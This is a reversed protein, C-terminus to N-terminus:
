NLTLEKFIYDMGAYKELIWLVYRIDVNVCKNMQPHFYANSCLSEKNGDFALGVLEGKANMVPSGSNGGTIDNNSLFNIHMTGTNKDAWRGWDKNQILALQKDKLSFEYDDPNYKDLIGKSTSYESCYIGDTPNIPGVNGYTIRMTSNADPSQVRGKELNMEYMANTYYKELLAVSSNHKEEIQKRYLNFRIIGSSYLLKYLPDNKFEAISHEEKAFTYMRDLDSFISTNWAGEVLASINGNYSNYLDTIGEGWFQSDVTKFFLPVVYSLIDKELRLDLNSLVEKINKDFSPSNAFVIKMEDSQQKRPILNDMSNSFRIPLMYLQTSNVLTERYYQIQKEIWELDSYLSKMDSLLNGWKAKREPNSDIWEQLEKEKKQNLKVVGYRRFTLCEGERLEQVNSISFYRDSYKLRIQPDSIMWKDMINLCEKQITTIIPNIAKETHNVGFSSIYRDTSGPYGMIMTFDGKKVGKTSITLSREPVLPVNDASYKAPKGDKDAYIRYLAFDGKHQPWEWNDTDGGFAAISVPPAAVLRVDTYVVYLFMYYKEGKWMSAMSAEMGSLESHRKEMTYYLKRSGFPKGEKLKEAKLEAVEDTVDIVKKLFYVGKGPIPVEEERSFAWFGDELYNHESTSISHVDSYACHHNTILLGEKSIMSGTCGFDLSVIADSISVASEDYIVNAPLKLGAKKMKTVLGKELLNVM